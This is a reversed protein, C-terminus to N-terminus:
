DNPGTRIQERRNESGATRAGPPPWLIRRLDLNLDTRVQEADDDIVLDVKTLKNRSRAM